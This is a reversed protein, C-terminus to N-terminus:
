LSVLPDSRIPPQWDEQELWSSKPPVPSLAWVCKGGGRGLDIGWEATCADTIWLGRGDVGDNDLQQSLRPVPRDASEDYVSLKVCFLLEEVVVKVPTEAHVVVNTVLESVVLKIDDVLHSLHHQVLARVVLDRAERVSSHEQPFREEVCWVIHQRM